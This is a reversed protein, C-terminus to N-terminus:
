LDEVVSEAESLLVQGALLDAMLGQRLLQLKALRKGEAEIRDRVLRIKRVIKTQETRAGQYFPMAALMKSNITYLGSSTACTRRWYAGALASNMWLEAFESDIQNSRLRFLHNQYLLGVAEGTVRACRGIEEPNAHGEVVLLDGEQLALRQREQPSAQLSAVDALDIQQRHVNAVRLYKSPRRTPERGPGLTVGAQISFCRGVTSNIANELAGLTERKISHQLTELKRLISMSHAILANMTEFIEAIRRQEEIPPLSVSYEALEERNIKPIGSRGSVAEAFNSFGDSLILALLYRSDLERTPRLPYMDASCLGKFPSLVAKRLAPRIKSYVVDGPAIVYKGSIARQEAATRVELLRGTCSEVHDPAILIQRSYPHRRPDVQGSPLGVVDLLRRRTWQQPLEPM